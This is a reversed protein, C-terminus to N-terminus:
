GADVEALKQGATVPMGDEVAYESFTGAAESHIQIFTKM